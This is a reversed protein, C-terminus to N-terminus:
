SWPPFSEVWKVSAQGIVRRELSLDMANPSALQMICKPYDFELAKGAEIAERLPPRITVTHYGGAYGLHAGFTSGTFNVAAGGATAAVQFTDTTISAGVVYFRTLATLGTPLGGGTTFMVAQDAVLGHGTWHVVGPTGITFTVDAMKPTYTDLKTVEAIRYLRHSYTEHEISMYEGGQLAAGLNVNVILTTARLSAAAVAQASILNNVFASGDSCGVGDTTLVSDQETDSGPWPACKVDRVTLAIPNAGGDLVSALARWARIQNATSVQVQGMSGAWMGGGDMRGMQYAGGLTRGGSISRGQLEWSIDRDRMLMEPFLRLFQYTQFPM